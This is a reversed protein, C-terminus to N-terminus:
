LGSGQREAIGPLTFPDVRADLVRIGWHLHAGTVRGTAGALGLQEGQEIREGVTVGIESLHLYVSIVGAGHDIFVANGSFFLNDALVVRGGNAAYVPTGDSARLDAGSHPNRPQGNFFRRHGFNRGGGVGPLPAAFPRLWDTATSRSAYVAAIRRSERAARQQDEANLDVYRQEVELHTEPYRGPEVSLAETREIVTGDDLTFRVPLEYEGAAVDLDIGILAVWNGEHRILPIQENQWSLQAAVAPQQNALSVLVAQGQTATLAGILLWTYM